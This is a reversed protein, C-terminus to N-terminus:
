NCDNYNNLSPIESTSWKNCELMKLSVFDIVFGRTMQVVWQVIPCPHMKFTQCNKLACKHITFVQLGNSSEMELLNEVCKKYGCWFPDDPVGQWKLTGLWFSSNRFMIWQSPSILFVIPSVKSTSEIHKGMTNWTWFFPRVSRSANWTSASLKWVEAMFKHHYVNSSPYPHLIIHHLIIYYRCIFLFTNFADM